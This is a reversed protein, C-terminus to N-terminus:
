WETPEKQNQKGHSRRWANEAHMAQRDEAQFDGSSTYQLGKRGRPAGRRYEDATELEERLQERLQERPGRGSAAWEDEREREQMYKARKEAERKERQETKVARVKRNHEEREKDWEATPEPGFILHSFGNRRGKQNKWWERMTMQARSEVQLSHILLGQTTETKENKRAPDRAYPLPAPFLPPTFPEKPAKAAKTEKTKVEDAKAESSASSPQETDAQGNTANDSALSNAVDGSAVQEAAPSAPAQAPSETDSARDSAEAKETEAGSAEAGQTTGKAAISRETVVAEGESGEEDVFELKDRISELEEESIEENRGVKAWADAVVENKTRERHELLSPPPATKGGFSQLGRSGFTLKPDVGLLAVRKRNIKITRKGGFSMDAKLAEETYFQQAEIFKGPYSATAVRQQQEKIAEPDSRTKVVLTQPPAPELWARGIPRKCLRDAAQQSFAQLSPFPLSLDNLVIRVAPEIIDTPSRNSDRPWLFTRLPMFYNFARHRAEIEEATQNEWDVISDAITIKPAYSAQSGDQPRAERHRDPLTQLTDLLLESSVFSMMPAVTEYRADAALSVKRQSLIKGRDFRGESLQQITVGTERYRRAIAWQIPAAGRLDPLLSPHVNIALSPSAKTFHRLTEDPILKGFSATILISDKKPKQFVEPLKLAELTPVQGDIEEFPIGNKAAFVKVPSVRMRTAGWKQRNDAITRVHISRILDKRGLLSELVKVAFTDNGMFLVDYPPGDPAPGNDTASTTQAADDASAEARTEEETNLETRDPASAFRRQIGPANRQRYASPGSSKFLACTGTHHSCATRGRSTSAPTAKSFTRLPSSAHTARAGQTGATRVTRHVSASLMTAPPYLAGSRYAVIVLILRLLPAFILSTHPFSSTPPSAFTAHVCGGPM